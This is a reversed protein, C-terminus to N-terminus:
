EYKGRTMYKGPINFLILLAFKPFGVTIGVLKAHISLCILTYIKLINIGRHAKILLINAVLQYLKIFIQLNYNQAPDM